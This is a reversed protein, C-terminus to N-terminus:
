FPSVNCSSSDSSSRQCVLLTDSRTKRYQDVLTQCRNDSLCQQYNSIMFDSAAIIGRTQLNVSDKPLANLKASVGSANEVQVCQEYTNCTGTRISSTPNNPRSNAAATRQEAAQAKRAKEANREDIFTGLRDLEDLKNNAAYYSRLQSIQADTLAKPNTKFTKEAALASTKTKAQEARELSVLWDKSFTEIRESEKNLEAEALAWRAKIQEIMPGAIQQWLADCGASTKPDPCYTTTAKFGDAAKAVHISYVPFNNNYNCGKFKFKKGELETACGSMSTNIVTTDFSLSTSPEDSLFESWLPKFPDDRVPMSVNKNGSVTLHAEYQEFGTMATPILMFSTARGRVYGSQYNIMGVMDKAEALAGLGHAIGFPCDGSWQMKGYYAKWTTAKTISKKTAADYGIPEDFTASPQKFIIGCGNQTYFLSEGPFLPPTPYAKPNWQKIEKAQATRNALDAAEREERTKIKQNLDDSEQQAKQAERQRKAELQQDLKEAWPMLRELTQLAKEQAAAPIPATVFLSGFCVSLLLACQSRYTKKMIDGDYSKVQKRTSSHSPVYGLKSM